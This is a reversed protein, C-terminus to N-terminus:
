RSQVVKRRMYRGLLGIAGTGLLVLSSPEPVTNLTYTASALQWSTVGPAIDLVVFQLVATGSANVKYVDPLFPGVCDGSSPDAVCTSFSGDFIAPVTVSLTTQGPQAAPLIILGTTIGLGNPIVRLANPNTSTGGLGPLLDVTGSCVDGSFAEAAGCFSGVTTTASFNAGGPGSLSFSLFGTVDEVFGNTLGAFGQTLSITDASCTAAFLIVACAILPFRRMVAVGQNSVELTYTASIQIDILVFTSSFSQLTLLM